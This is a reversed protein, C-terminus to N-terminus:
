LFVMLLSSNFVIAEGEEATSHIMFTLSLFGQCSFTTDSDIFLWHLLEQDIKGLKSHGVNM